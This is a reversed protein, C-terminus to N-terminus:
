ATVRQETKHLQVRYRDGESDSLQSKLLEEVLERMRQEALVLWKLGM